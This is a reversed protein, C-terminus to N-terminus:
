NEFPDDVSAEQGVNYFMFDVFESFPTVQVSTAMQFRRQARTSPTNLSDVEIRVANFANGFRSAVGQLQRTRTGIYQSDIPKGLQPIMVQRYVTRKFLDFAMDHALWSADNLTDPNQATRQNVMVLGMDPDYIMTNFGSEDIEQQLEKPIRTIRIKEFSADIQGGINGSDNQFMPAWAGNKQRMIRVLMDCYAGVPFRWWRTNSRMDRTLIENIPYALGHDNAYSSRMSPIDEVQAQTVGKLAPQVVRAFQHTSRVNVMTSNLQEYGGADFFIYVNDYLADLAVAWGAELSAAVDTDDELGDIVRVGTLDLNFGDVPINDDQFPIIDEIMVPDDDETGLLKVDVVRDNAVVDELFQSTGFGDQQNPDLSIDYERPSISINKAPWDTVVMRVYNDAATTRPARVIRIQTLTSTAFKQYVIAEAQVTATWKMSVRDKSAAGATFSLFFVNDGHLPDTSATAYPYEPADVDPDGTQVATYLRTRVELRGGTGEIIYQVGVFDGVMETAPDYHRLVRFMEPHETFWVGEATELQNILYDISKNQSANSDTPYTVTGRSLWDESAIAHAKVEEDNYEFTAEVITGQNMTAPSWEQSLKFFEVYKSPNSESSENTFAQDGNVADTLFFIEREKATSEIGAETSYGRYLGEKTIFLTGYQNRLDGMEAGPPASVYIPHNRNFDIVEQVHPNSARPAGFQEIIYSENGAPIFLPETLGRKSKIVTFGAFGAGTDILQVDSFDTAEINLRYTRM